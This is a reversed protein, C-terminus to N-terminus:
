LKNVTFRLVERLKITISKVIEIERNITVISCASGRTAELWYHYGSLFARDHKYLNWKTHEPETQTSAAFFFGGYRIRDMDM